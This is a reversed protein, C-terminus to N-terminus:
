PDRPGSELGQRHFDEARWHGREAAVRPGGVTVTTKATCYPRYEQKPESNAKAHEVFKEVIPNTYSRAHSGM